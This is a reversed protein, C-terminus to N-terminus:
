GDVGEVSQCWEPLIDPVYLYEQELLHKRM